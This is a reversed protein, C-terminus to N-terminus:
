VVSKRDTDINEHIANGIEKFKNSIGNLASDLAETNKIGEMIANKFASFDAGINFKLDAMYRNKNKLLFPQSNHM